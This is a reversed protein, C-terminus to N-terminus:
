VVTLRGGVFCYMEEHKVALPSGPRAIHPEFTFYDVSGLPRQNAEDISIFASVSTEISHGYNSLLDLNEFGAARVTSEAALYADRFTMEPHASEILAAHLAQELAMAAAAEAGAEDATVLQGGRLFYTRASDGFCDGIRPGVDITVTEDEAFPTASPAYSSDFVSLRLRDGSLVIAPTNGWYGSAGAELMLRHCAEHLTRESAGPVIYQGIDVLVRRAIDQAANYTTWARPTGSNM